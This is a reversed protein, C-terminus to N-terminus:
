AKAWRNLLDLSRDRDHIRMELLKNLSEGIKKGELGAELADKGNVSLESVYFINESLIIDSISRVHRMSALVEDRLNSNFGNADCEVFNLLNFISITLEEKNKFEKSLKKIWKFVVKNKANAEIRVGHNKILFSVNDSLKKGFGLRLLIVKVTESGKLEHGLDNPKGEKNLGRIGDTGKDVDHFLATLLMTHNGKFNIETYKLVDLTHNWADTYHYKENQELGELHSLEPFVFNMLGFDMLNSVFSHFNGSDLSKKIIKGKLELPVLELLEKNRIMSEKTNNEISFNLKSGLYIGRLIRSPDEKFRDDPNGVAKIIRKEIDIVGNQPDILVSDIGKYIANITFDRRESDEELSNVLKIDPKSVKNYVESRYQAIEIGDVILVGFTKGVEDVFSFHPRFIDIMEEVSANTVLDEDLSEINLLSDRVCGGVYYVEYGKDLLIRMIKETLM